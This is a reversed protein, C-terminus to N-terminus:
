NSRSQGSGQAQPIPLLLSCIDDDKKPPPDNPHRSKVCSIEHVSVNDSLHKGPIYLEVTFMRDLSHKLEDPRCRSPESMVHQALGSGQKSPLSLLKGCPTFDKESPSQESILCAELKEGDDYDKPCTPLSDQFYFPKGVKVKAGKHGQLVMSISFYIRKPQAFTFGEDILSKISAEDLVNALVAPIQQPGLDDVMILTLHDVPESWGDVTLNGYFLSLYGGKKLAGRALVPVSSNAKAYAAAGAFVLPKSPINVPASATGVGASIKAWAGATATDGNAPPPMPSKRSGTSAGPPCEVLSGTTSSVGNKLGRAGDCPQNVISPSGAAAWANAYTEGPAIIPNINVSLTATAGVPQPNNVTCLLLAVALLFYRM